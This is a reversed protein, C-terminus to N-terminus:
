PGLVLLVLMGQSSTLFAPEPGWGVSGSDSARLTSLLGGPSESGLELKFVALKFRCFTAIQMSGVLVAALVSGREWAEHKM